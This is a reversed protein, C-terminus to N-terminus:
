LFLLTFVEVITDKEICTCCKVLCLRILTGPVFCIHIFWTIDRQLQLIDYLIMLIRFVDLAPMLDMTICNATSSCQIYSLLSHVLEGYFLYLSAIFLSAGSCAQLSGTYFVFVKGLTSARCICVWPNMVQALINSQSLKKMPISNDKGNQAIDGNQPSLKADKLNYRGM